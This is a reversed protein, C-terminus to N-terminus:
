ATAGNLVNEVDAASKREHRGKWLENEIALAAADATMGEKEFAAQWAAIKAEMAARSIGFHNASNGVSFRTFKPHLAPEAKPPRPTPAPPPPPPEPPPASTPRSGTEWLAKLMAMRPSIRDHEADYRGRMLQAFNDEDLFFKLGPKTRALYNSCEAKEMALRWGDTGGCDRLRAAILKREKSTLRLARPWGLREALEDFALAAEDEETLVEGNLAQGSASSAERAHAREDDDDQYSKSFGYQNQHSGQVVPDPTKVGGPQAFEAGAPPVPPAIQAGAPAPPAIQASLGSIGNKLGGPAEPQEIAAKKSRRAAKSHAIMEKTVAVSFVLRYISSSLGEGPASRRRREAHGRNVLEALARAVVSRDVHLLGALTEVSYWCERDTNACVALLIGVRLATKGLEIDLAINAPVIGFTRDPLEGSSM